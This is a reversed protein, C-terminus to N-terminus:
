DEVILLPAGIPSAYGGWGWGGDSVKITDTIDVFCGEGLNLHVKNGYNDLSTWYGSVDTTFIDFLGDGNIDFIGGGMDKTGMCCGRSTAGTGAFEFSGDRRNYYIQSKKFDQEVFLDPYHDGNLDHILFGFAFDRDTGSFPTSITGLGLALTQDTFFGRDNKM